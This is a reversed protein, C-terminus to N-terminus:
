GGEDAPNPEQPKGATPEPEDGVYAAELAQASLSYWGEDAGPLGVVIMLPTGPQLEHPEDLQIQKGDFHGSLFIKQIKM